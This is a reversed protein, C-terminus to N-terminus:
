TIKSQLRFNKRRKPAAVYKGNQRLETAMSNDSLIDEMTQVIEEQM